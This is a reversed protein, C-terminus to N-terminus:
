KTNSSKSLLSPASQTYEMHIFTRLTPRCILKYLCTPIWSPPPLDADPPPAAFPRITIPPHDELGLKLEKGLPQVTVKM